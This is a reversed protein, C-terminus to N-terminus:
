AVSERVGSAIKDIITFAELMREQVDEPLESYDKKRHRREVYVMCASPRIEGESLAVIGCRDCTYAQRSIAVSVDGWVFIIQGTTFVMPCVGCRDASDSWEYYSASHWRKIVESDAIKPNV